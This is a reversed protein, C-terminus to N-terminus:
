SGANFTSDKPRDADHVLTLHPRVAHGNVKFDVTHMVPLWTVGKYHIPWTPFYGTPDDKLNKIAAHRYSENHELWLNHIELPMDGLLSDKSALKLRVVLRTLWREDSSIQAAIETNTL